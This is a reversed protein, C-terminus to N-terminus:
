RMSEPWDEVDVPATADEHLVVPGMAGARPFRRAFADDGLAGDSEEAQRGRATEAALVIVEAVGVPFDGPLRLLVEHSETVTVDVRHAKM